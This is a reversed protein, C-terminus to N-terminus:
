LCQRKSPSYKKIRALMGLNSSWNLYYQMPLKPLKSPLLSICHCHVQQLTNVKTVNVSMKLQHEQYEFTAHFTKIM